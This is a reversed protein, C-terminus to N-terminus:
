TKVVQAQEDCTLQRSRGFVRVGRARGLRCDSDRGWGPDLGLNLPRRLRSALGCAERIAILKLWAM